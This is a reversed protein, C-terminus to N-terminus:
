RKSGHHNHTPSYRALSLALSCSPFSIPSTMLPPPATTLALEFSAHSSRSRPVVLQVVPQQTVYVRIYMSVGELAAAEELRDSGRAFSGSGSQSSSPRNLLTTSSSRACSFFEGELAITTALILEGEERYAQASASDSQSSLLLRRRRRRVSTRQQHPASRAQSSVMSVSALNCHHRRGRQHVAPPLADTIYRRLRLRDFSTAPEGDM